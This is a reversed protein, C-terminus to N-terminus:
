FIELYAIDSKGVSFLYDIVRVHAPSWLLEVPKTSLELKKLTWVILFCWSAYKLELDLKDWVPIV